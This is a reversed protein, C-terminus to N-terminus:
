AAAELLLCLKTVPRELISTRTQLRVSRVLGKADPRADLVKGMMWSGRPATADAVLVIDGATLSRRPRSWKQREQMMPLYESIWRKWFLEAMYQIQKWRKRIYLDDRDFLGPPMIPKGKLSLIHNPTLAELDDPDDSVRTIPRDNLIAEVECFITQLGEDDLTQQQLVSTLVSKVSRILREWIGGQHSAAPTNFNWEIGDQVLSRQIKGHNVVALSEKLERNAGVFNTGNDTRITSVPGRRCIFRRVANLCSDTDLTYAVELHVARSTFCTFLVGYRKVLSRGRKVNIPGFYDVGVNTFPAKDPVVREEPLDAMKQEGLRGRNRRCVVCESIVKRAASNANIIWYKQQLRSLMHNRGAHGLQHHIHSLILKSVHLDKSLIVPHKSEAPLAAKSLRGGVRLIEDDDMVPDLKYLPSEKPVTKFSGKLSAIEAIFKHRQVHQIISKEAKALDHPTLSHGKLTAKFSQIGREVEQEQIKLNDKRLGASACFEKRKQGLLMLIEKVKLFWAVSQKLRIWSSFYSILHNTANESDKIVANVMIDRKVEPDDASIVNLDVELKPWAEKAKYLFEPGNIWRRSKLFDEARLGRSAEDAPNEKSGVYRWQDVDAADRIVATRNAVFTHFRRTESSIYKLVTTSDTWFVSKELKFQLEKRLMQDIRVALVAATLELRPITTQKLPAVRAKGLLFAVHVKHDKELRVYSVAGYGVQSADSFHHLQATPDRFDRPKICRDVKFESMRLLDELWNSWQESFSHPIADDWGM